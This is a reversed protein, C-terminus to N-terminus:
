LIYISVMYVSYLRYYIICVICHVSYLIYCLMYCIIPPRFTMLVSEIMRGRISGLLFRWPRGFCRFGCGLTESCFRRGCFMTQRMPSAERGGPSEVKSPGRIRGWWSKLPGWWVGSWVGCWLLSPPPSELDVGGCGVGDCSCDASPRQYCKRSRFSPAQCSRPNCHLQRPGTAPRCLLPSPAAGGLDNPPPPGRLAHGYISGLNTPSHLARITLGGM